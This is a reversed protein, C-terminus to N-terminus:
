VAGPKAPPQPLNLADAVCDYLAKAGFVHNITTKYYNELVM